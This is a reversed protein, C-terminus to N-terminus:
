DPRDLRWKVGGKCAILLFVFCYLATLEGRNVIPFFAAGTQFKWHFQFYAVAMEGSCIFAAWRTQVGLM